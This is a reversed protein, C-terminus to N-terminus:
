STMAEPSIVGQAVQQKFLKNALRLKMSAIWFWIQSSLIGLVVILSISNKLVEVDYSEVMDMLIRLPIVVLIWALWATGRKRYACYYTIWFSIPMLAMEVLTQIQDNSDGGLLLLLDVIYTVAIWVWFSVLWRKREKNFM